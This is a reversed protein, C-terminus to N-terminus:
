LINKRRWNQFCVDGVTFNFGGFGVKKQREVEDTGTGKDDTSAEKEHKDNKLFVHRMFYIKKKISFQQM